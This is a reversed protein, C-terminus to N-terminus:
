QLEPLCLPDGTPEQVVQARFSRTVVSGFVGVGDGAISSIRVAGSPNFAGGRVSNVYNRDLAAVTVQVHSGAPLGKQLAILLAPDSDFREFLGFEAPFVLTTDTGSIALGNLELPEPISDPEVGPIRGRLGFVKAEALYAWAGPAASWTVPLLSGAPLECASFAPAQEASGRPILLQFAGPVITRARMLRGDGTEIRLTYEGGPQVDLPESATLYCTPDVVREDTAPVRACALTGEEELLVTAGGPATISVLAGPVAGIVDDKISRHLLVYQFPSGARLIAEVVVLDENDAPIVTESIECAALMGLAALAVLSGLTRQRM